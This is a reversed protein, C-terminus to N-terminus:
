IRGSGNRGNDGDMIQLDQKSLPSDRAASFECVLFGLVRLFRTARRRISRPQRSRRFFNHRLSEEGLSIATSYAGAAEARRGPTWYYADGLNGWIEYSKSDLKVAREFDTASEAYRRMQFHATGLNSLANATPRITLSRELLPIADSYKGQLVRVGGLNYFGIFSDPALSTVQGFMEAAEEYRAHAMYFLGLWNHTAWYAPRVTIAQKYLKEAQRDNGRKEALAGLGNLPYALDPHNAALSRKYITLARRYAKEAETYRGQQAYTLGLNNLTDAVDPNSPGKTREEVSLVRLYLCEAKQYKGLDGHILALNHLSEVTKPDNKYIMEPLEVYM